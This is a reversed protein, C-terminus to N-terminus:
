PKRNRTPRQRGLSESQPYKRLLTTDFGAATEIYVQAGVGDMEKLIETWVKDLHNSPAPPGHYSLLPERLANWHRGSCDRFFINRFVSGRGETNTHVVIANTPDPICSSKHVM